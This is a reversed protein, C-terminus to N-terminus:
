AATLWCCYRRRCQHRPVSADSLRVCAIVRACWGPLSLASRAVPSFYRAFSLARGRSLPLPRGDLSLARSFRAVRTADGPSSALSRSLRARPRLSAIVLACPVGRMPSLLLARSNLLLRECDLAYVAGLSLYISLYIHNIQRCPM